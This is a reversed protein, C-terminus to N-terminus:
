LMIKIFTCFCTLSNLKLKVYYIPIYYLKILTCTRKLTLLSTDYFRGCDRQQLSSRFGLFGSSRIHPAPLYPLYSSSRALLGAQIKFNSARVPWTISPHLGSAFEPNKIKLIFFLFNKIRINRKIIRESFGTKLKDKYGCLIM